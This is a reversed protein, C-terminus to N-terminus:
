PSPVSVTPCCCCSPLAIKPNGQIIDKMAHVTSYNYIKPASGKKTCTHNKRQPPKTPSTFPSPRRACVCVRVYWGSHDILINITCPSCAFLGKNENEDNYLHLPSPSYRSHTSASSFFDKQNIRYVCKTYIRYCCKIASLRQKHLRIRLRKEFHNTNSSLVRLHSVCLVISLSLSSPFTACYYSM